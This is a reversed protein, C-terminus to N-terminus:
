KFTVKELVTKVSAEIIEKVKETSLSSNGAMLQLQFTGDGVPTAAQIKYYKGDELLEYVVYERKNVTINDLAKYDKEEYKKKFEDLTEYTIVNPSATLYPQDNMSFTCSNSVMRSRATWGEPIKVTYYKGSIEKQQDIPVLKPQAQAWSTMVGAALFAFCLLFKKM